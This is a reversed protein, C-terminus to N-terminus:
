HKEPGPAAPPKPPSAAEEATWFIPSSWAIHLDDQVLRVYYGHRRGDVLPAPDRWTLEVVGDARAEPVKVHADVVAGDRVISIAVFKAPTTRGLGAPVAALRFEVPPAATVLAGMPAGRAGPDAAGGLAIVGDRTRWDLLIRAGTTAYTRRDQLGAFIRKRLSPERRDGLVFALGRRGYNSKGDEDLHTEYLGYAHNDSGGILGFVFGQALGDDVAAKEIEPRQETFDHRLLYPDAADKPVFRESSGHVSFIEVVPQLPEIPQPAWYYTCPERREGVWLSHHAIVIVPTSTAPRSKLFDFLEAHTAIPVPEPLDAGRVPRDAPPAEDTFDRWILHRHGTWATWELAPFAIFEREEPDVRQQFRRAVENTHHFGACKSAVHHLVGGFDDRRNWLQPWLLASTLGAHGGEAAHRQLDGALLQWPFPADVWAPNSLAVFQAEKSGAPHWAARVHHVGPTGFTAQLRLVGRDAARMTAPAPLTAKPDDSTFEVRGAADEVEVANSTPTADAGQFAQVTFRFPEGARPTMPLTVDLRDVREGTFLLIPPDPLATFKGKGTVDEFVVVRLAAPHWPLSAGPGGDGVDGFTFTVLDDEPLPAVARAEILPADQGDQVLTTVDLRDAPRSGKATVYDAQKPRRAQFIALPFMRLAHSPGLLYGGLDSFIPNWDNEAPFGFGVRLAGGAAIGGKGVRVAVTFTFRGLRADDVFEPWRSIPVKDPPLHVVDPAVTVRAPAAQPAEPPADAEAAAAFIQAPAAAALLAVGIPLTWTSRRTM